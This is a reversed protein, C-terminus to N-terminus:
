RKELAAFAADAADLRDAAAALEGHEAAHVGEIATRTAGLADRRYRADLATSADALELERGADALKQAMDQYVVSATTGFLRGQEDQEVRDPGFPGRQGCRERDPGDRPGARRARM